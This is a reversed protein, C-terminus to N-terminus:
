KIVKAQNLISNLLDTDVELPKWDEAIPATFVVCHEEDTGVKRMIAAPSDLWGDFRWYTGNRDTFYKGVDKKHIAM